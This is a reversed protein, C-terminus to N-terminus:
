YIPTHTGQDHTHPYAVCNHHSYLFSNTFLECVGM